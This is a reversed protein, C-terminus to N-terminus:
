SFEDKLSKGFNRIEAPIETDMIEAITPFVDLISAKHSM